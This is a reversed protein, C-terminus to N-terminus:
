RGWPRYKVMRRDRDEVLMHKGFTTKIKVVIQVTNDPIDCILYGTNFNCSANLANNHEM